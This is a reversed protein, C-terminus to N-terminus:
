MLGDGLNQVQSQVPALPTGASMTYTYEVCVEGRFEVEETGTRVFGLRGLLRICPCNRADTVAEVWSGLGTALLTPVLVALAETACGSGQRSTSLTFGLGLAGGREEPWRVGVDGVLTDSARDALTFQCWQGPRHWHGESNAAVFAATAEPPQPTWGQWRGLGPEHRMAYFAPLDDLRMRRLVLRPTLIPFPCEEAM